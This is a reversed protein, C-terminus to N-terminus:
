AVRRGKWYYRKKINSWCGIVTIYIIHMLQSSLFNKMLDKRNFYSAMEALFIYDSITKVLFLSMFLVTASWGLFPILLFALLISCCHLFVIGLISTTKWEIYYTSKSAWRLRQSLFSSVNPKAESLVVANKNKLFGVQGPFRVAMKQMLLIDDGSALHDIGEFGNVANFAMRTYALNAGNCMNIWKLQIGAATVCMMGMFDLSQFREFMSKEQHFNVPAAIFQFGKTEFFSVLLLLWDSPSICDADTTVILDATSQVIAIEIAKKKYSGVKSNKIFGALRLVKFSSHDKAFRSAINFTDDGSHDDVIIVELLEKPYSLNALAQLCPAINDAEDRAPVVVSVKTKPLFGSPTKWEPLSRWGKIYKILIFVYAAALAFSVVILFLFFGSLEM